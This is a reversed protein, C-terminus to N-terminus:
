NSKAHHVEREMAGRRAFFHLWVAVFEVLTVDGGGEEKRNYPVRPYFDVTVEVLCFGIKKAAAGADVFTM